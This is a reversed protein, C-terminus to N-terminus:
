KANNGPFYLDNPHARRIIPGAQTATRCKGPTTGHVQKFARAFNTVNAYRLRVAIEKIPVATHELLEKARSMRRALVYDSFPMGTEEKFMRSLHSVSVGCSDAFRQLSLEEECHEDIRTRISHVVLTRRKVEEAHIQSQVAPFVVSVLWRELAPLSAHRLVAQHPDEGVAEQLRVGLRATQCDLETLLYGLSAFIADSSAGTAQWHRFLAGLEEGAATQNGDLLLGVIRKQREAAPAAEPQADRVAEGTIPEEPSATLRYRLLRVAEAYGESLQDFGHLPGSLSLSASFGYLGPLRRKAEAFAETIRLLADNGDEPLRCVAALRGPRMPVALCAAIGDASDELTRAWAAQLAPREEERFRRLFAEEDNASAVAVVFYGEELPFQWGKTLLPLDKATVEGFLLQRLLTQALRPEQERVTRELERNSVVLRAICADLEKLGDAFPLRSGPEPHLRRLMREIPYYLRYSGLFSFLLWFLALGTSVAVTLRMVEKARETLESVPTMVAYRWHTYASPQVSLRYATGDWEYPVTTEERTRSALSPIRQGIDERNRSLVVTDHEDLVFLRSGTSLHLSDLFRVLEDVSVHLVLIGDTYATSLPVPRFLMLEPPSTGAAPTVLFSSNAIPRYHSVLDLYSAASSRSTETNSYVSGSRVYVLSAKWRLPSFNSERRIAETMALTETLRDIGPGAQVSASLAPHSALSISDMHLTKLLRDLERGTQELVAAHSRDTEQQMHASAMYASTLGVGAVPVISLLLSFLTLKRKFTMRAIWPIRM